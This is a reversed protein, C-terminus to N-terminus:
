KITREILWSVSLLIDNIQKTKYNHKKALIAFESNIDKNLVRILNYGSKNNLGLYNDPHTNEGDPLLSYENQFIEFFIKINEVHGSLTSDIQTKDNLLKLLSSYMFYFSLSGNKINFLPWWGGKKYRINNHILQKCKINLYDFMDMNFLKYYEKIGSISFGEITNGLYRVIMELVRSDEKYIEIFRRNSFFERSDSDLSAFFYTTGQDHNLLGESAINTNRRNFTVQYYLPFYDIRTGSSDLEDFTKGRLGTHLFPKITIKKEKTM